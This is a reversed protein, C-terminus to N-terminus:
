KQNKRALRAVRAESLYRKMTEPDVDDELEAQTAAIAALQRDRRAKRYQLVDDLLLMRRNSTRTCDIEGADILKILTPRSMGLLDAAQQTTLSQSQPTVTIAKGARMAGVVQTLIANVEDPLPIPEDGTLLAFTTPADHNLLEDIQTVHTDDSPLYTKSDLLPTM